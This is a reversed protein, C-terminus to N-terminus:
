ELPRGDADRLDRAPVHVFATYRADGSARATLGNVANVKQEDADVLVPTRVSASSVESGASADGKPAVAGQHERARSIGASGWATVAAPRASRVREGLIVRREVVHLQEGDTEPRAREGPQADAQRRHLAQRERCAQRHDAHRSEVRECDRRMARTASRSLTM